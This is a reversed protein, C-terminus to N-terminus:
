RHWIACRYQLKRQQYIVPFSDQEVLKFRRDGQSQAPGFTLGPHATEAELAWARKSTNAKWIIKFEPKTAVRTGPRNRCQISVPINGARKNKKIERKLKFHNIWIGSNDAIAKRVPAILSLSVALILALVKFRKM